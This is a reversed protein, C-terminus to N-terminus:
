DQVWLSVSGGNCRFEGYYWHFFQMMVANQIPM